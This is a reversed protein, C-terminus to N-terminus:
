CSNLKIYSNRYLLPKPEQAQPTETKETMYIDLFKYNIFFFYSPATFSIFNFREGFLDWIYLHKYLYCVDLIILMLAFCNIFKASNRSNLDLSINALKISFLALFFCLSHYLIYYLKYVFIIGINALFCVTSLINNLM